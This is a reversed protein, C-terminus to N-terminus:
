HCDSSFITTLSVSYTQLDGPCPLRETDGNRIQLSCVRAEIVKRSNWLASEFLQQDPFPPSAYVFYSCGLYISALNFSGSFSMLILLGGLVLNFAQLGQVYRLRLLLEVRSCKSYISVLEEMTPVRNKLACSCAKNSLLLADRAQCLLLDIGKQKVWFETESIQNPM